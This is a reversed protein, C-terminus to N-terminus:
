ILYFIFYNRTNDASYKEPNLNYDDEKQKIM